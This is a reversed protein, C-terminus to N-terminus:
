NTKVVITDAIYDHLGRKKHSFPIMLIALGLTFANLQYALARGLARIFSVKSGDPKVVKLGLAAKGLTKGWKGVAVTQYIVMVAFTIVFYILYFQWFGSPLADGSKYESAWKTL